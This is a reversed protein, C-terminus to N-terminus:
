ICKADSIRRRVKEYNDPCEALLTGIVEPAGKVLIEAFKETGTQVSQVVSMRKVTSRPLSSFHLLYYAGNKSCCGNRKDDQLEVHEALLRTLIRWYWVKTPM